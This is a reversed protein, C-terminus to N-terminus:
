NTYRIVNVRKLKCRQQKLSMRLMEDPYAKECIGIPRRYESLGFVFTPGRPINDREGKSRRWVQISIGKTVYKKWRATGESMPHLKKHLRIKRYSLLLTKKNKKHHIQALKM